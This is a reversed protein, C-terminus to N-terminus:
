RSALKFLEAGTVVLLSNAVITGCLGVVVTSIMSVKLKELRAKINM